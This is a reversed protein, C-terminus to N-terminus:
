DIKFRIANENAFRFIDFFSRMYIFRYERFCLITISLYFRSTTNSMLKQTSKHRSLDNQNSFLDIM